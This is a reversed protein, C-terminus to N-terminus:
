QRPEGASNVIITPGPQASLQVHHVVGHFDYTVDWYAPPGSAAVTECRRVDHTPPALRNVNAGLAAGGVAGGITAVSKGHAAASRTASCAASCAASSRARCTSKSRRRRSRSASSGAANSPRGWSPACM